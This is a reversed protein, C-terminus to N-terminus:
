PEHNDKSAAHIAAHPNLARDWALYRATLNLVRQAAHPDSGHFLTAAERALKRCFYALANARDLMVIIASMAAQLNRAHSDRREHSEFEALTLVTLPGLRMEQVFQVLLALTESSTRHHMWLPTASLLSALPSHFENLTGRLLVAECEPAVRALDIRVRVERCSAVFEEVEVLPASRLERMRTALEQISSEGGPLQLVEQRSLERLYVPWQEDLLLMAGLTTSIWRAGQEAFQLQGYISRIMSFRLEPGADADPPPWTAPAILSLPLAGDGGRLLRAIAGDVSQLAEATGVLGFLAGNQSKFKLGRCADRLLEVHARALQDSRLMELRTFWHLREVAPRQLKGGGKALHRQLEAIVKEPDVDESEWDGTQAMARIVFTPPVGRARTPRERYLELARAGRGQAVLRDGEGASGGVGELRLRHLEDDTNRAGAGVLAEVKGQPEKPLDDVFRSFHKAAFGLMREALPKKEAAARHYETMARQNATKQKEYWLTAASNVRAAVAAHELDAEIMPLALNRLETHWRLTGPMEETTLWSARRLGEYVKRAHPRDGSAEAGDVSPIVIDRLLRETVETLAMAAVVYRRAPQRPVHQIVRQALYGGATAADIRGDRYAQQITTVDAESAQYASAALRLVLPNCPLAAAALAADSAPMGFQKLLQCGAAESLYGLAVENEPEFQLRHDQFRGALSRMEPSGLADRGALIARLAYAPVCTWISSLWDLMSDVADAGLRSVNELTDLLLVVDRGRFQPMYSVPSLASIREYQESKGSDEAASGSQTAYKARKVQRAQRYVTSSSSSFQVDGEADIRARVRHDALSQLQLIIRELESAFGPEEVALARLFRIDMQEPSLPDLYPSDFDLRVVLTTATERLEKEAALLLTSKGSGGIGSVYLTKVQQPNAPEQLFKRIKQQEADRGFIATVGMAELDRDRGRRKRQAGATAALAELGPIASGWAAMRSLQQLVELPQGELVSQLVDSDTNAASADLGMALWLALRVADQEDEPYLVESAERLLGPETSSFVRKRATLTMFWRGPRTRESLEVEQGVTRLASERESDAIGAMLQLPAVWGRVALRRRLLMCARTEQGPATGPSPGDPALLRDLTSHLQRLGEGAAIGRPAPHLDLATTDM